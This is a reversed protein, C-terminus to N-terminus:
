LESCDSPASTVIARAKILRAAASRRSASEEPDSAVRQLESAKLEALATTLVTDEWRKDILRLAAQVRAEDSSEALVDLLEVSSLGALDNDNFVTEASARRAADLELTRFTAERLSRQREVMRIWYEEIADENMEPFEDIAFSATGDDRHKMVM